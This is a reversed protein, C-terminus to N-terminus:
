PQRPLARLHRGYLKVAERTREMTEVAERPDGAVARALTTPHFLREFDDPPSGFRHRPPEASLYAGLVPKLSPYLRLLATRAQAYRKELREDPGFRV